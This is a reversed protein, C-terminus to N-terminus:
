TQTSPSHVGETVTLERTGGQERSSDGAFGSVEGRAQVRAKDSRAESPAESRQVSNGHSDTAKRADIAASPQEVAHARDDM